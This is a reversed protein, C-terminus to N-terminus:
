ARKNKYVIPVCHCQVIVGCQVIQALVTYYVCSREKTIPPRMLVSLMDPMDM